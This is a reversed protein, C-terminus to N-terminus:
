ETDNMWSDDYDLDVPDLQLDVQIEDLVIRLRALAQACAHRLDRPAEEWDLIEKIAARPGLMASKVLFVEKNLRESLEGARQDPTLSEAKYLKAKLDDTEKRHDSVIRRSAELEGQLDKARQELSEKEEAHKASMAGVIDLLTEKDGEIIAQRIEDEASGDTNAAIRLARSMRGTIGLQTMGEFVEPGFKDFQTIKENVHERSYGFIYRCCDDWTTVTVVEGSALTLSSGNLAQYLKNEKIKKWEAVMTATVLRHIGGLIQQRGIMQNILDRADSYGSAAHENQAKIVQKTTAIDLETEAREKRRKIDGMDMSKNENSM